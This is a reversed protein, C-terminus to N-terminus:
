IYLCRPCLFQTIMSYYCTVCYPSRISGSIYSFYLEVKLESCFSLFCTKSVTAIFFTSQCLFLSIKNGLYSELVNLDMDGKLFKQTNSIAFYHSVKCKLNRVNKKLLFFDYFLNWILFDWLLVHWVVDFHKELCLTKITLRLLALSKSPLKDQTPFPSPHTM